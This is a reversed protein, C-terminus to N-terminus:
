PFYGGGRPVERCVPRRKGRYGISFRLSDSPFSLLAAFSLLVSSIRLLVVHCFVDRLSDQLRDRKQEQDRHDAEDKHLKGGVVRHISERPRIHALRLDVSDPFGVAQVIRDGYLVEAPQVIEQVSIEAVREERMGADFIIKQDPNRVRDKQHEGGIECGIEERDREAEERPGAPPLPRILQDVAKAGDPDGGWGEPEGHEQDIGEAIPHLEEGDEPHVGNPHFFRERVQEPM